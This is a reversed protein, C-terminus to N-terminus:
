TTNDNQWDQQPLLTISIEHIFIRDHSLSVIPPIKLRQDKYHNGEKECNDTFNLTKTQKNKNNEAVPTWEYLYM